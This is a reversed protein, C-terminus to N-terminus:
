FHCNIGMARLGRKSENKMVILVRTSMSKIEHNSIHFYPITLTM